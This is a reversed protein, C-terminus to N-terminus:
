WCHDPDNKSLVAAGQGADSRADTVTQSGFLGELYLGHWDSQVLFAVYHHFGFGMEAAIGEHPCVSLYRFVSRQGLRCLAHTNPKEVHNLASV